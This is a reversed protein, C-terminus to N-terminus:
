KYVNSIQLHETEIEALARFIERVRPDQGETAAQLYYKIARHERLHAEEFKDKDNDPCNEQTFGPMQEGMMRALVEAHEMEQKALRKFIAQNFINEAKDACCKYFTWNSIEFGLAARCKELDSENLNLKGYDIWQAAHVM